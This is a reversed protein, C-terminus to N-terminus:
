TDRDDRRYGMTGRAWGDGLSMSLTNETNPVLALDLTQYQVRSHYSTWGPALVQRGLREGNLYAQYIGMASVRLTARKVNAGVSIKKSFTVTTMETYVPSKIWIQHKM